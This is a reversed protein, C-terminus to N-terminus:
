QPNVAKMRLRTSGHRAAPPPAVAGAHAAQGLVLLPGDSHVLLDLPDELPLLHFLPPLDFDQQQTLACLRRRRKM